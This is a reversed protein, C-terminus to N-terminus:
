TRHALAFLVALVFVSLILEDPIMDYRCASKASAYAILRFFRACMDPNQTAHFIYNNATTNLATVLISYRQAASLTVVDVPYPETYVGDAEIISMEHGEIWINFMSLSSMNIIRLRYTRGPVFPLTTNENFGPLYTGNTRAFYVLGSETSDMLETVTFSLGLRM